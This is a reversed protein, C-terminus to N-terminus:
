FRATLREYVVSLEREREIERSGVMSARPQWLSWRTIVEEMEVSFPLSIPPLSGSSSSNKSNSSVAGSGSRLLYPVRVTSEVWKLSLGQPGANKLENEVSGFCLWFVCFSGLYLKECDLLFIRGTSDEKGLGWVGIERSLDAGLNLTKLNLFDVFDALSASCVSPVASLFLPFLKKVRLNLIFSVSDARVPSELRLFFSVAEQESLGVNCPPDLEFRNEFSNISFYKHSTLGRRMLTEFLCVPPTLNAPSNEGVADQEVADTPEAFRSCFAFADAPNRTTAQLCRPFLLDAEADTVPIVDGALLSSERNCCCSPISLAM